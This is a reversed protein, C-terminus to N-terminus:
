PPKTIVNKADNEVHGTQAECRKRDRVGEDRAVAGVFVMASSALDRGAVEHLGHM